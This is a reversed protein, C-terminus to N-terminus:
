ISSNHLLLHDKINVQCTTSAQQLKEVLDAFEEKDLYGNKDKDAKSIQRKIQNGLQNTKYDLSWTSNSELTNLMNQLSRKHLRGDKHGDKRDLSNFVLKWDEPMQDFKISSTSNSQRRSDVLSTLSGLSINPLSIRSTRRRNQRFTPITYM